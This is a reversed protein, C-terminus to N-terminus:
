ASAPLERSARVLKQFDPSRGHQDTSPQDEDMVEDRPDEDVRRVDDDDDHRVRRTVSRDMRDVMTQTILEGGYVGILGNVLGYLLCPACVPCSACFEQAEAIRRKVAARGNLTAENDTQADFLSAVEPGCRAHDLVDPSPLTYHSLWKPVGKATPVIGRLGDDGSSSPPPIRPDITTTM